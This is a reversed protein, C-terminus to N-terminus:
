CFDKSRGEEPLTQCSQLGGKCIKQQAWQPGSESHQLWQERGITRDERSSAVAQLVSSWRITCAINEIISSTWVCVCVGLVDAMLSGFLTTLWQARTNCSWWRMPHQRYRRETYVWDVKPYTRILWRPIHTHSHSSLVGDICFLTYLCHKTQVYLCSDYTTSRKPWNHLIQFLKQSLWVHCVLLCVLAHYSPYGQCKAWVLNLPRIECQRGNTSMGNVPRSKLKDTVSGTDLSESTLCVKKHSRSDNRFSGKRKNGTDREMKAKRTPLSDFTTLDELRSASLSPPSGTPM